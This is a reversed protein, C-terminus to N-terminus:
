ISPAGQISKDGQDLLAELAFMHYEAFQSVLMHQSICLSVRRVSDRQSPHSEVLKYALRQSFMWAQDDVYAANWQGALDEKAQAILDGAARRYLCVPPDQTCIKGCGPFPEFRRAHLRYMLARFSKLFRSASKSTLKALLVDRLQKELEDTDAYSWGEQGGRRRAFWTSILIILSRLLVQEDMSERRATQARVIINNWLRDLANDDETMSIVLRVFDRRFIPDDALTRAADRALYAAPASMDIDPLLPQYLTKNSKVIESSSMYAKVHEDDPMSRKSDGDKRQDKAQPVKLMVPADDGTSFVAAQGITLTALSRAQRENMAMAGALATRDDASVIRHAIKLNTNKMIEPALKVPVQDAVIIGQGYARIESLLNAFTEVAKARPNGEEASMQPGANTLLRHAEEIVMLHQLGPIEDGARRYEYLRILLLGMVFAKDDDDGMGQLELVTERELLARMPLSRQVDLMSGKGGVRLGNLRTLLAARMDDTIKSEYGLKQIVEDAKAALETLTPFADAVDSKSDLRHNSNTTIDWGRDEYIAHLCQELIQPLPTWMGFSATFVSRLLDLHAGVSIKPWSVVEFPNLRFPSCLENGPTFVQLRGNLAEDDLLARYEAKAPELVLFPVRSSAAQKLLYFITNSKGAGTVGAVFVHRTLDELGIEYASETPRTRLIVTGLRLGKYDRVLPPVADFDPVSTVTFGSTELQPLHVYAALQNSTLLTQYELPYRFHGPGAVGPADPLAWGIALERASASNGGVRVPEPLSKDGSFIGRWLSTLRYFSQRDGLLYVGTRWLGVGLASTLAKFGVTLLESYHKALPSPTKEAQADQVSRVEYMVSNRLEITVKEDVPEALTLAAWNTGSLARILRDLPLAGDLPGPAKATPIGMAMGSLTLSTLESAAEAEVETMEIAPYLSELGAKLIGQRYDLAEVSVKGQNSPSWTGFYISVGRPSARVLFAMPIKQGYLGILVDESLLSARSLGNARPTKEIRGVGQIRSLRRLNAPASTVATGSQIADLNISTRQLYDLYATTLSEIAM